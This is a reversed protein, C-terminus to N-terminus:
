QIKFTYADLMPFLKRAFAENRVKPSHGTVIREPTFRDGFNLYVKFDRKYGIVACFYVLVTETAGEIEWDLYVAKAIITQPQLEKPLTDPLSGGRTEQDTIDYTIYM